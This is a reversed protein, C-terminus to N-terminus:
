KEANAPSKRQFNRRSGPTLPFEIASLACLKESKANLSIKQPNVGQASAAM